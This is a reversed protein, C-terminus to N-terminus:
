CRCRPCFLPHPLFFLPHSLFLLPHYVVCGDDGYRADSVHWRDHLCAIRGGFTCQFQCGSNVFLHCPVVCRSSQWWDVSHMWDWVRICWTLEWCPAYGCSLACSIQCRRGRRLRKWHPSPVSNDCLLCDVGQGDLFLHCNVGCEDRVCESLVVDLLYYWVKLVVCIRHHM